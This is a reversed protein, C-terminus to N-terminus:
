RYNETKLVATSILLRTTSTANALGSGLLNGVVPWLYMMRLVVIDGASGLNYNMSTTITGADGYTLSPTATAASSFASATQVDVYLLSCSYLSPLSACLAQKFQAQTLGKTQTTGTLIQRATDQTFSELGQQAFFMIFFQLGFLLVALFPVSVLAFEVATAGSTDCPFGALRRSPGELHRTSPISPSSM